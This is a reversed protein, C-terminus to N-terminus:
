KVEISDLISEALNGAIDRMFFEFLYTGVQNQNNVLFTISYTGDDPVLDGAQNFPDSINFPRGNDVMIFPNNNAPNGDPFTFNFYVIDIDKLGQPDSTKVTFLTETFVGSQSPRSINDPISYELLRGKKNEIFIENQITNSEVGFEDQATFVMTYLGSKGAAFTSDIKLSYVSDNAFVDGSEALNGDNAMEDPDDLDLLLDIFVSINGPPSDPDVVVANLVLPGSGSKLTDILTASKLVPGENFSFQVSKTFEAAANGLKDSINFTFLFDGSDDSIDTGLFLNRFVGDGAILDASGSLGGDDFLEGKFIQQSSSNFVQMIASDLDAFGQPDIVKIEVLSSDASNLNWRDPMRLSIIQPDSGSKPITPEESCALLLISLAIIINRIIM